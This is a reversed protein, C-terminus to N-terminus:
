SNGVTLFRAFIIGRPPHDNFWVALNYRNCLGKNYNKWDLIHYTRKSKSIDTNKM